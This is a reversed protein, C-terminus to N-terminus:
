ERETGIGRGPEEELHDVRLLGRARLLGVVLTVGELLRHVEPAAPDRAAAVAAAPALRPIARRQRRLQEGRPLVARDDSRRGETERLRDPAPAVPVIAVGPDAVRREGEVPEHAEAVGVLRRGEHTPEGGAVALDRRVARELDHIPEVATVR